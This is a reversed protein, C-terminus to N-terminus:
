VTETVPRALYSALDEPTGLGHMANAPVEYVGIRLGSRIMYNYVPCTYFENNVRDDRAIMDIAGSVFDSGRRFLYIGVTALDSIPKKEAVESVLDGDLRAFSWKPNMEVDRFVLISGDLDRDICDQVFADVSFDVLQDSNAVLLPVDDDFAPRALLLTCATGQTLRDAVHISAGKRRLHEVVDAREHIHDERLILHCEAHTAVNRMVWEIMPRGRVDIFPKPDAFGASRFRSGEGAAPIVVRLKPARPDTHSLSSQMLFAEYDEIKSPSYLSHYAAEPISAHVVKGGELIVENLCPSIYYVGEHEAGALLSRKAAELFLATTKFYYFGAIADRSIVRKEAAQLVEEGESAVYSWRPHVSPFTLVGADGHRIKAFLAQSLGDIVQDGNCIILPSDKDLSQIALLCSCLAGQTQGHLRVIECKGDTLLRLTEGLSFRVDDEAQIIFIFRADHAFAKLNRVVREIMTKGGVEILPKPFHHDQPPFFQTPGALPVVIQM